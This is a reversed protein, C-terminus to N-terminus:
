VLSRKPIRSFEYLDPGVGGFTSATEKYSRVPKKKWFNLNPFFLQAAPAVDDFRDRAIFAKEKQLDEVCHTLNTVKEKRRFHSLKEEEFIKKRKLAYAPADTWNAGANSRDRSSGVGSTGKWRTM